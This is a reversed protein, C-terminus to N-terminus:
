SSVWESVADAKEKTGVARADGTVHAGRPIQQYARGFELTSPM